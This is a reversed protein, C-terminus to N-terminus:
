DVLVVERGVDVVCVRVVWAALDVFTNAIGDSKGRGENRGCSSLPDPSFIGGSTSAHITESSDETTLELM